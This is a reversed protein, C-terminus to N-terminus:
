TLRRALENLFAESLDDRESKAYASLLIVRGELPRRLYIVRVGGRRGKGGRRWRVKRLGSAGPIVVGADPRLAIWDIFLEREDDDWVEDAQRRFIPTEVVTLM